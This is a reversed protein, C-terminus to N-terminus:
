YRNAEDEDFGEDDDEDENEQDALYDAAYGGAYGMGEYGGPGSHMDGETMGAGNDDFDKEDKNMAFITVAFGSM